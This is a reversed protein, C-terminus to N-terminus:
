QQVSCQLTSLIIAANRSIISVVGCHWIHHYFFNGASQKWFVSKIHIKCKEAIMQETKTSFKIHYVHPTENHWWHWYCIDLCCSMVDWFVHIKTITETEGGEHFWIADWKWLQITLDVHHFCHLLHLLFTSKKYDSENKWMIYKIFM